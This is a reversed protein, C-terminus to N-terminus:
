FGYYGELGTRDIVTRGVVPMRTLFRAFEPMSMGRGSATRGFGDSFQLEDNNITVSSLLNPDEGTKRLKSKGIATLLYVPLDRTERHVALQFRDALLSQLMTRCEALAIKRAPKAEIHFGADSSNIWDPGGILRHSETPIEYAWSILTLLTQDW